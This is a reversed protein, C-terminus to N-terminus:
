NDRDFARDIAQQMAPNAAMAMRVRDGYTVVVDRLTTIERMAESLDHLVAAAYREASACRETEGAVREAVLREIIPAIADTIAFREWVMLDDGCFYEAGHPFSKHADIQEIARALEEREHPTM